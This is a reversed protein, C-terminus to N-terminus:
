VSCITPLTLHTYSVAGRGVYKSIFEITQVEAEAETIGDALVRDVLGSKTHHEHNWDDMSALLKESQRIVLVPGEELINLSSDTAITAIELIREIDPDLGTMELDMWILNESYSVMKHPYFM